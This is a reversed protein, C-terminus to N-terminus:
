WCELCAKNSELKFEKERGKIYEAPYTQRWWKLEKLEQGMVLRRVELSLYMSLLLMLVGGIFTLFFGKFDFKM